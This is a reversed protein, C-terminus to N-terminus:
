RRPSSASGTPTSTSSSAALLAQRRWCRRPRPPITPTSPCTARAPSSTPIAPPTSSRRFRAGGPEQHHAERDIAHAIAQRVRKDAFFKQGSTGQVDFALYSVRLTKANEVVLAPNAKLREAQDKPVDWLWDIAGTMLEAARTNGDKITRFKIKSIKPDGKFGGKFYAANREMMIYDGPKVETVKYPGTGNPAVAGFDKKGDPKVPASDYHGKQM